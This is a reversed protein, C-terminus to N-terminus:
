EDKKGGHITLKDLPKVMSDFMDDIREKRMKREEEQLERDEADLSTRHSYSEYTEIISIIAELKQKEPLKGRLVKRIEQLAVKEGIGAMAKDFLNEM